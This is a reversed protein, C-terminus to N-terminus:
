SNIRQSAEMKTLYVQSSGQSTRANGEHHASKEFYVELLDVLALDVEAAFIAMDVNRSGHARNMGEIAVDMTDVLSKDSVRSKLANWNKRAQEGAERLAQWDAPEAHLLVQFRFGAYDLLAVEIPVKLSGRDLAEILTLYAACSQLAIAALNGQKKEKRIDAVLARLMERKTAPLISEVKGAQSEYAQLSREIGKTDGSIALETLDEFPSSASLILENNDSNETRSPSYHKTNQVLASSVTLNGFFVIVAFVIMMKQMTKM